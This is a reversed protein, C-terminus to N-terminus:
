IHQYDILYLILKKTYSPTKTDKHCFCPKRLQSMSYLAFVHCNLFHFFVQYKVVFANGKSRYSLVFAVCSCILYREAQIMRRGMQYRINCRSLNRGFRHGSCFLWQNDKGCFQNIFLMLIQYQYETFRDISLFFSWIEGEHIM